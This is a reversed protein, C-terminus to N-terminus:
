KRAAKIWAQLEDRDYRVTHDNLHFYHPGIGKARWNKLTEQHVDLIKAAQSPRLLNATM